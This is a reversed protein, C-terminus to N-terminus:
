KWIVIRVERVSTLNCLLTRAICRFMTDLAEQRPFGQNGTGLLPFALSLVSHCDAQYFCSSILDAILATGPRIWSGDQKGVTVAHIVYRCPLNGGGTVVARGPRVPSLQEAAHRLDRGGAACIAKSVGGAMSLYYDDSSVIACVRQRVINGHLIRIVKDARLAFSGVERGEDDLTQGGSAVGCLYKDRNSLYTSVIGALQPEAETLWAYQDTSSSSLEDFVDKFRSFRDVPSKAMCREIVESTRKSLRANRSRPSILPETKHRYLVAFPTEGHFPREGTLAHYFTAGFSYIDARTDVARPDEAQEPAMYDATGLFSGPM